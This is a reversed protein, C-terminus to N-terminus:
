NFNNGFFDSIRSPLRLDGQKSLVVVVGFVSVFLGVLRMFLALALAIYTEIGYFQLIYIYVGERWGWNGISVPIANSLGIIPVILLLNYISLDIDFSKVAAFTALIIVGKVLLSYIVSVFIVQSFDRYKYIAEYYEKLGKAFKNSYISCKKTILEFLNKNFLLLIVSGAVVILVIILSAIGAETIVDLNFWVAILMYVFFALVGSMKEIIVTSFTETMAIKEKRSIFYARIMDGGISSPLINNYMIGVLRAKLLEWFSVAARHCSFLMRWYLTNILLGVGQLILVVFVWWISITRFERVILHLDIKKVLLLLLVIAVVWRLTNKIKQINM